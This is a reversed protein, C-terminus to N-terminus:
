EKSFLRSIVEFSTGKMYKGDFHLSIEPSYYFSGFIKRFIKTNIWFIKPLKILLTKQGNYNKITKLIDAVSLPPLNQPFFIGEARQDIIQKILESLTDIHLISRKDSTFMLPFVPLRFAKKYGELQSEANNGIVPCCRIIALRTNTNKFIKSLVNEAALKSKGYLSRPKPETELTIRGVSQSNYIDMTSLYIFQRIGSDLAKRGVDESLKVNIEEYYSYKQEPAHYIGACHLLVDYVSFDISKWEDTRLSISDIQYDLNQYNKHVYEKFALGIKSHKGTILVKM